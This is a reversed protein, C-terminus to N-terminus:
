GFLYLITASSLNLPYLIITIREDHLLLFKMLIHHFGNQLGQQDNDVAIWDDKVSTSDANERIKERTSEGTHKEPHGPLSPSPPWNGWSGRTALPNPVRVLTVWDERCNQSFDPSVFSCFRSLPTLLDDNDHNRNMTLILVILYIVFSEDNKMM